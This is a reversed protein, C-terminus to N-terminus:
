ESGTDEPPTKWLMRDKPDSPSNVKFKFLNDQFVRYFIPATLKEIETQTTAIIVKLDDFTLHAAIEMYWDKNNSDDFCNEVFLANNDEPDMEFRIDATRLLSLLAAHEDQQFGVLTNIDVSLIASLDCLLDLTPTAYMLDNEYRAYNQRTMGLKEALAAQTYGANTRAKRLNQPFTIPKDYYKM